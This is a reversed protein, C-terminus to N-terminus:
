NTLEVRSPEHPPTRLARSSLQKRKSAAKYGFSSIFLCFFLRILIVFPYRHCSVDMFHSFSFLIYIHTNTPCPRREVDKPRLIAFFLSTRMQEAFVEKVYGELKRWAPVLVVAPSGQSHLNCLVLLYAMALYVCPKLVELIM